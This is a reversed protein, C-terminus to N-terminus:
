KLGSKKASCCLRRGESYTQICKQFSNVAAIQIGEMQPQSSLRGKYGVIFAKASPNIQERYILVQGIAKFLMDPNLNLKIEYIADPTVIDAIGADCAVEYQVSIGQNKLGEGILSQLESELTKRKPKKPRDSKRFFVSLFPDTSSGNRAEEIEASTYPRLKSVDVPFHEREKRMKSKWLSKWV